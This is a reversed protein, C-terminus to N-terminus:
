LREIPLEDTCTMTGCGCDAPLLGCAACSTTYGVGDAGTCDGNPTIRAGYARGSCGGGPIYEIEVAGDTCTAPLDLSFYACSSGGKGDALEQPGSTTTSIYDLGLTRKPRDQVLGAHEHEHESATRPIL